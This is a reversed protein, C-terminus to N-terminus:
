PTIEVTHQLTMKVPASTGEETTADGWQVTYQVDGYSVLGTHRNIEYTGEAAGQIGKPDNIDSQIHLWALDESLGEFTYQPQMRLDMHSPLPLTCSHAWQEGVAVPSDKFIHFSADLLFRLLPEGFDTWEDINSLSPAQTDWGEIQLVEGEPSLSITFAHGILPDLAALPHDSNREDSDYQYPTVSRNSRIQLRTYAAQLQIREPQVQEVKLQIDSIINQEIDLAEGLFPQEIHQTLTSKYLYTSGETLQLRLNTTPSDPSEVHLTDQALSASSMWLFFFLFPFTSTKMATYM